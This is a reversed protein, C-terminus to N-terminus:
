GYNWKRNYMCDAEWFSNTMRLNFRYYGHWHTANSWSNRAWLEAQINPYTRGLDSPVSPTKQYKSYELIPDILHYAWEAIMEFALEKAGTTSTPKPKSM